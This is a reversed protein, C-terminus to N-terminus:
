SEQQSLELRRQKVKDSFMAVLMAFFGAFAALFIVLLMLTKRTLGTPELSSVPPSVIRTENYNDLRTQIELITQRQSAIDNEHTFKIQEVDLKAKEVVLKQQDIQLNNEVLMQDYKQKLVNLRKEVEIIGLRNADIKSLVAAKENELTVYYREELSLLRNHNQQSENSLMLLSMASLQTVEKQAVQRAARDEKIQETLETLNKSIIQKNETIRDVQQQLKVGTKKLLELEHESSIIQNKFEDKKIGFFSEDELRTLKDQESELHIQSAKLKISLQLPNELRKLQLQAQELSSILKAKFSTMLRRHDEVVLEAVKQQFGSILLVDDEKVKNMLTIVQSDKPNETVTKFNEELQNQEVWLSTTAPVISNNIKSLLSETSELPLIKGDQAFTGIQVVTVLSRKEQFLMFAFLVGAILITLFISLFVKRYAVLSVWLDVLNIEDEQPPYSYVQMPYSLTGRVPDNM